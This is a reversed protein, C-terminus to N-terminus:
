EWMGRLKDGHALFDAKEREKQAKRAAQWQAEEEATMQLPEHADWRKLLAAIGEPTTPWDEERMGQVFEAPMPEILVECGEPWDPPVDVCVQGNKVATKIANM